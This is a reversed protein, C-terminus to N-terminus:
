DGLGIINVSEPSVSKLGNVYIYSLFNPISNAGTLNNNILWRAEDQMLLIFSQDLTVSYQFDPWVSTTYSNTNNLDRAVIAIAQDKHNLNFNQAQVLAKLFRVILDSHAAAWDKACIAEFYGFQDAQAPWMVTRNGLLSQIQNIYPQFTISADVTGNALANPTEAFNLNVLTVQSLNIGNLDLYRGLYFQTATGLAVGIRKGALDSVNNIGKDTRSVLYVNQYKSVSGFACLNANQLANNAVVFESATSINTEGNLMGRAASAGSTYNKLTVRLGNALFYQQDNAVYILSTYESPYVGLTITEINGSYPKQSDIYFFLSLAIAIILVVTILIIVLRRQSLRHATM